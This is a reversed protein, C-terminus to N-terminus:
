KAGAKRAAKAQHRRSEDERRRDYSVESEFMSVASHAVMCFERICFQGSQEGILKAVDHLAKCVQSEIESATDSYATFTDGENREFLSKMENESEPNFIGCSGRGSDPCRAITLSALLRLHVMIEM